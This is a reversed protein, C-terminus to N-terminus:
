LRHPPGEAPKKKSIRTRPVLAPIDMGLTSYEAVQVQRIRQWCLRLDKFYKDAIRQAEVSRQHMEQAKKFEHTSHNVRQEAKSQEESGERLKSRIEAETKMRLIGLGNRTSTRDVLEWTLRASKKRLELLDKQAAELEMRAKGEQIKLELPHGLEPM